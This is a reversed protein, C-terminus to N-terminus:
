CIKSIKKDNKGGMNNINKFWEINQSMKNLIKLFQNIEEKTLDKKLNNEVKKIEKEISNQIEISKETLKISKLRADNNLAERTILGNKEMLSLIEAVTARRMNFKAEIDKAYVDGRKTKESIIKIFSCQVATVNYKSVSEDIRRKIQRSLIHVSRGIEPKDIKVM